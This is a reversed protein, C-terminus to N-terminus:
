ETRGEIENSTALLTELKESGHYKVTEAVPDYDVAGADALKPLHVHHVDTEVRVRHTEAGPDPYESEVVVAVLDDRSVPDGSRTTLYSLLLRRRESALLRHLDDISIQEQQPRHGCRDSSSEANTDSLQDDTM